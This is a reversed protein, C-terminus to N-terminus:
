ACALTSRKSARTLFESVDQFYEISSVGYRFLLKVCEGTRSLMERVAAIDASPSLESLIAKTGELCAYESCASLVKNLELRNLSKADM